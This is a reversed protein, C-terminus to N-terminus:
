EDILCIMRGTVSDPAVVWLCADRWGRGPGVIVSVFFEFALEDDSLHARYTALDISSPTLVGSPHTHWEGVWESGDTRYLDLAATFTYDLDRAFRHPERLAKPGPGVAHNVVVLDSSGRGFLAGGTENGDLSLQAGAYIQEGAGPNM